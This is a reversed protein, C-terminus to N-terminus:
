DTCRYWLDLLNGLYDRKTIDGLMMLTTYFHKKLSRMLNSLPKIVYSTENLMVHKDTHM